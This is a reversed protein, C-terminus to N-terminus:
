MKIPLVGIFERLQTDSLLELLSAKPPMEAGRSQYIAGVGDRVASRCAVATATPDKGGAAEAVKRIIDKITM